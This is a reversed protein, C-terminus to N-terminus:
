TKCLPSPTSSPFSLSLSVYKKGLCNRPGYSFPNFADKRDNGFEAQGEPLWREPLFEDPRHFSLPSRHVAYQFM